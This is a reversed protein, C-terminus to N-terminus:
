AAGQWEGNIVVDAKSLESNLAAASMINLSLDLYALFGGSGLKAPRASIDVAIVVNAGERACRLAVARGIGRSGGTIFITKGQISSM